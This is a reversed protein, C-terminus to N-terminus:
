ALLMLTEDEDEEEARRRAAALARELRALRAVIAPCDIQPAAIAQRVERVMRRVAPAATPAQPGDLLDRLEARLAARTEGQRAQRALDDLRRTRERYRRLEEATFGDHTDTATPTPPAAPTLFAAPLFAAALFAM